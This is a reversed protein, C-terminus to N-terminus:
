KATCCFGVCFQFAVISWDFLYFLFSFLFSVVEGSTREHQRRTRAEGGRLAVVLKAELLM